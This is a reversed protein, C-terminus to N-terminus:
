RLPLDDLIVGQKRAAQKIREIEANFERKAQAYIEARAKALDKDFERKAQAHGEARADARVQAMYGGAAARSEAQMKAMRKKHQEWAWVM